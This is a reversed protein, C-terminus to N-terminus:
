AVVEMMDQFLAQIHAQVADESEDAQWVAGHVFPAHLNIGNREVLERFIRAQSPNARTQVGIGVLSPYRDYRAQHHIEGHIRQFFPEVLPILHDLMKKMESSYSGFVVPTLLLLLDSQMVLADIDHHDGKAICQGPTKVWCDFCGMCYPIHEDRLIRVTTQCGQRQLQTEIRAAIRDVHAEGPRAGNLLLIKM